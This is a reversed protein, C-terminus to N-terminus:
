NTERLAAPEEAPRKNPRKDKKLITMLVSQAELAAIDAESAVSAMADERATVPCQSPSWLGLRDLLCTLESEQAKDSDKRPILPEEAVESEDGRDMSDLLTDNELASGLSDLDGSFGEINAGGLLSSAMGARRQKSYEDRADQCENEVNMNPMIQKL